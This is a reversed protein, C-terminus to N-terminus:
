PALREVKWGEEGESKTYLVRDHLRSSKGTWFEVSDPSVRFGGWGKPRPVPKTEDAFRAAAAAASAKLEEAGGLLVTSQESAHAGVQSGRPRSAFYADAEDDPVRSISGEVRVSRVLHPWHFVLAARKAGSELELGKRSAYHTYFSIGREDYGKMLVMRASPSGDPTSTALCMANPEPPPTSPSPSSSSSSSSRSTSSLALSSAAARFWADFEVM